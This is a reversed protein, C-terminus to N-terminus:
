SLRVGGNNELFTYVVDTKNKLPIYISISKFYNRIALERRDKSHSMLLTYNETELGRDNVKINNNDSESMKKQKLLKQWRRLIENDVGIKDAALKDYYTIIRILIDYFGVVGRLKLKFPEDKVTVIMQPVEKLGCDEKALTAIVSYNDAAVKSFVKDGHALCNRCSKFYKYILRLNDCYTSRGTIKFCGKIQSTPENKLETEFSLFEGKKMDSAIDKKKRNSVLTLVSCVFDDVWADFIATANILLIESIFEEEQEWTYGHAIRELNLGHIYLGKVIASKAANNNEGPNNVFFETADQRLNWLGADLAWVMDFTKTIEQCASQSAEFFLVLWKIVETKIM